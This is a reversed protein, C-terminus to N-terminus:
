LRQMKHAVPLDIREATAKAVEREKKEDRPIQVETRGGFTPCVVLAALPDKKWAGWLIFPRTNERVPFPFTEENRTLHRYQVNITLFFFLFFFSTECFLMQPLPFKKIARAATITKNPAHDIYSSSSSISLSPEV